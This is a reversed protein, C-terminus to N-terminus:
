YLHTSDHSARDGQKKSFEMARDRLRPGKDTITFISTLVAGPWPFVPAMISSLALVYVTKTGM